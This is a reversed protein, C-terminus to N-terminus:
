SKKAPLLSRIPRPLKGLLELFLHLSHLPSASLNLLPSGCGESIGLCLLLSQGPPGGHKQGPVAPHHSPGHTSHWTSFCPCAHTRPHAATLQSVNAKLHLPSPPSQIQSSFSLRDSSSIFIQSDGKSFPRNFSLSSPSKWSSPLSPPLWGLGPESSGQMDGPLPSSLLSASPSLGECWASAWLQGEKRGGPGCHGSGNM